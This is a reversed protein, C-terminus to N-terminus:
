RIMNIIYLVVLSVRNQLPTGSLAWRHIGTLAFAAHSTQSNRSKIFHAEDLVVRWWCVSHLVSMSAGAKIIM